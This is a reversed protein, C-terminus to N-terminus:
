GREWGGAYAAGAKLPAAAYAAGTLAVFLAVYGVVNRM